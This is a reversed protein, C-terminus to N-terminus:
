VYSIIANYYILFDNQARKYELRRPLFLVSARFIAGLPYRFSSILPYFDNSLLFWIPFCFALAFFRAFVKCLTMTQAVGAFSM